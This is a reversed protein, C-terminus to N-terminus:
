CTIWVSQKRAPFYEKIRKSAHLPKIYQIEHCILLKEEFVWVSIVWICWQWQLFFPLSIFSHTNPPVNHMLSTHTLTQEATHTHTTTQKACGLRIDPAPDLSFHFLSNDKNTLRKWGCFISIKRIASYNQSDQGRKHGCMLRSKFLCTSFHLTSYKETM